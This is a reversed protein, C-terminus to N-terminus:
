NNNLNLLYLNYIFLLWIYLLLWYFQKNNSIIFNINMIFSLFVFKSECQLEISTLM